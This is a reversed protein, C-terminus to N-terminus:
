LSAPTRNMQSFPSSTYPILMTTRKKDTHNPMPKMTTQQNHNKHVFIQHTSKAHPLNITANSLHNSLHPSPLPSFIQLVMSLKYVLSTFQNCHIRLISFSVEKLRSTRPHWSHRNPEVDIIEYRLWPPPSPVM